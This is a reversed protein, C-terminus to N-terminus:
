AGNQFVICFLPVYFPELFVRPVQMVSLYETRGKRTRSDRGANQSDINITNSLIIRSKYEIPELVIYLLFILDLLLTVSLPDYAERISRRPLFRNLAKGVMLVEINFYHITSRKVGSFPPDFIGEVFRNPGKSFLM